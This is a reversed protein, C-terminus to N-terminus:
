QEKKKKARQFVVFILGIIGGAIAAGLTKIVIDPLPKDRNIVEFTTNKVIKSITSEMDSTISGTYSHLTINIAKGNIITYYQVGYVTQDQSPQKILFKVFKAQDNYRGNLETKIYTIGSSQSASGLEKAMGLLDTDTYQNFDYIDSSGSYTTMTVVIEYLPETSIANLYIPSKEFLNRMYEVDIGSSIINPDSEDFDRTFVVLNSPLSITMNLEDIIYIDDTAATANSSLSIVLLSLVVFVCFVRKM